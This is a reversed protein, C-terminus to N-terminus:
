ASKRSARVQELIEEERQMNLSEGDLKSWLMDLGLKANAKLKSRLLAELAEPALLGAAGADSAIDDPLSIRIEKM